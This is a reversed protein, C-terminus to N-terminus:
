KKTSATSGAVTCTASIHKLSTANFTRGKGTGEWDGTLQVKHGIHASIDETTKIPVGNKYNGNKLLYGSGSPDKALCGTLQHTKAGTESKTKEAQTTTTTTSSSSSQGAAAGQAMATMTFALTVVALLLLKKM